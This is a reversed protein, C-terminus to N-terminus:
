ESYIRNKLMKVNDFFSRAKVELRDAWYKDVVNEIGIERRFIFLVKKPNTKDLSILQFGTSILATSCGLDFTYFYNTHDDLPVYQYEKTQNKQLLKSM